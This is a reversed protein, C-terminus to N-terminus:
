QKCHDSIEKSFQTRLNNFIAMDVNKMGNAIGAAFECVQTEYGTLMFGCKALIALADAKIELMRDLSLDRMHDALEHLRECRDEPTEIEDIDLTYTSM